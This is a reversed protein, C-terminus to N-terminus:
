KVTVVPCPAELIIYQATSGMILKGIKSRHKVGIIIEDIDNDKAYYVIDEGPSLSRIAIHTECPIDDQKFGDQIEHLKAQLEKLEKTHLEPSHGSATFVIVRANFALAHKKALELSKTSSKAADFGVLIKMKKDM